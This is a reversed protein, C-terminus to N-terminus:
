TRGLFRNADAKDSAVSIQRIAHPLDEELPEIGDEALDVLAVASAMWDFQTLTERLEPWALPETEMHLQDLHRFLEGHWGPLACLLDHEAPTLRPWWESRQLLLWAARDEPKRATPRRGGGPAGLSSMLDSAGGGRRGDRNFRGDRRGDRGDRSGGGWDGRGERRPVDGGSRAPRQPAVGWREALEAHELQAAEAFAKVMQLRLVGAPLARWLPEAQAVLRARGEPTAKDCDVAAVQLMQTSLPLAEAICREFAEPGEARVYSDPDHEPPLFLFRFARTDTAFPLVAEMARTAARRGAGDGDFSFVVQDTQRVLKQV